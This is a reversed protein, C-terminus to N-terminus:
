TKWKSNGAVQGGSQILIQVKSQCDERGGQTETM